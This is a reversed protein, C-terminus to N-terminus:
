DLRRVWINRYRVPDGHDQLLIPGEPVVTSDLGGPTTHPLIVNNHITIGNLLVTIRAPETVTGAEDFRPARFVIDYTQWEGAPRTANVLPSAISYIAGCTNAAVPQDFSDLVQVEYRGHIYVGSNGKAQGQADPMIPCRFELHLQFDRFNASTIADGGRVQVSGDDQVVWQSPQGDRQVWNRWGDGGFLIVSKDDLRSPKAGLTFSPGVPDNARNPATTSGQQPTSEVPAGGSLSPPTPPAATAFSLGAAVALMSSFALFSRAHSTTVFQQM